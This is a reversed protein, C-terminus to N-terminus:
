KVSPQVPIGSETLLTILQNRRLCVVSSEELRTHYRAIKNEPFYVGLGIKHQGAALKVHGACLFQQGVNPPKGIGGALSTHEQDRVAAIVDGVIRFERDKRRM